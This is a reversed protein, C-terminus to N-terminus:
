LHVPHPDVYLQQGKFVLGDTRAAVWMNIMVAEIMTACICARHILTYAGEALGGSPISM